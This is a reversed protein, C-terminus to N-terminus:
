RPGIPEAESIMCPRAKRVLDQADKPLENYNKGYTGLSFENKIQQGAKEIENLVRIYVEYSTERQNQISIIGKTVPIIGFSGIKTDLTEPLNPDKGSNLLFDRTVTRIDSIRVLRDRIMVQDRSNILVTLINRKNVQKPDPVKEWEPLKRLIGKDVEFTTTVLFFILLLFAIDATSGTNIQPVKTKMFNSNQLRILLHL